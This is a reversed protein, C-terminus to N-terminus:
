HNIQNHGPSYCRSDAANKSNRGEGREERMGAGEVASEDDEESELRGEITWGGHGIFCGGLRRRRGEGLERLVVVVGLLIVDLSQKM